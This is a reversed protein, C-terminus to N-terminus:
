FFTEAEAGDEPASVVKWFLQEGKGEESYITVNGWDNGTALCTYVYSGAPIDKGALYTGGSLTATGEIHRAVMEGQIRGKLSVLEDDSLKALDVEEASAFSFCALITLTFLLATWRKM